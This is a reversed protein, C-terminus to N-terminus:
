KINKFNKSKLYLEKERLSLNNNRIEKEEEPKEERILKETGLERFGDEVEIENQEDKSRGIGITQDAPVGVVSIEFPMWDMSRYIPEEGENEEVLTLNRVEYGFSINRRIGDVIDEFIEAGRGNKSFRLKALGRKEKINAAEVVGVQGGRHDELVAAGNNLRSLDVSKSKHDLIESGFWRRVPEESSFSLDVTREDENIDGSKINLNRYQREIKITKM